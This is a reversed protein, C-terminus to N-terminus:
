VPVLEKFETEQVKVMTSPSGVLHMTHIEVRLYRYLGTSSIVKWASWDGANFDLTLPTDIASTAFTDDNGVRVVVDEPFNQVSGDTGQPYMRLGSIEKDNGDGFDWQIWCSGDVNPANATTSFWANATDTPSVIGDFAEAAPWGPDFESSASAMASNPASGSFLQETKSDEDRLLAFNGVGKILRGDGIKQFLPGSLGRARHMVFQRMISRTVVEM